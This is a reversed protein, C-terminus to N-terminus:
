RDTKVTQTNLPDPILCAAKELPFRSCKPGHCEAKVISIYRTVDGVKAEYLQTGAYSGKPSFKDPFSARLGAIVEDVEKNSIVAGTM